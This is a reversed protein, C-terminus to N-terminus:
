DVSGKISRCMTTVSFQHQHAKIFAYKAKVGWGNRQSVM